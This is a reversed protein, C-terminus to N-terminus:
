GAQFLKIKGRLILDDYRKNVFTPDQVGLNAKRYRIRFFKKYIKRLLRKLGTEEFHKTIGLVVNSSNNMPKFNHMKMLNAINTYTNRSNVYSLNEAECTVAVIKSLYKEAGLLVEFDTGQCDTKLHEIYPIVDFPFYDLIEDLTIVPIKELREVEFNVPNLLSSCGPDNKTVYINQERNSDGLAAEVIFMRSDIENHNVYKISSNARYGSRLIEVNSKVPEFGIVILDQDEELWRASQPANFALGVDIKVRRCWEPLVIRNNWIVLGAKTLLREAYFDTV